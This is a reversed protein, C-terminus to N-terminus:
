YFNLFDTCYFVGLPHDNFTNITHLATNETNSVTFHSSHRHWSIDCPREMLHAHQSRYCQLQTAVRSWTLYINYLLKFYYTTYLFKTAERRGGIGGALGRAEAAM